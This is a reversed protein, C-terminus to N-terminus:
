YGRKYYEVESEVGIGYLNAAEQFTKRLVFRSNGNLIFSIHKESCAIINNNIQKLEYLSPLTKLTHANIVKKTKKVLPYYTTKNNFDPKVRLHYAGGKFVGVLGGEEYHKKVKDKFEASYENIETWGKVVTPTLVVDVWYDRNDCPIWEESYRGVLHTKSSSLIVTGANTSTFLVIIDVRKHKKIVPQM